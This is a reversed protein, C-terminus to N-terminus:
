LVSHEVLIVETQCVTETQKLCQIQDSQSSRVPNQPTAQVPGSVSYRASQYCSYYEIANDASNEPTKMKKKFQIVKYMLVFIMACALIFFALLIEFSRNLKEVEQQCILHPKLARSTANPPLASNGRNTLNAPALQELIQLPLVPMVPTAGPPNNANYIEHLFEQAQSSALSKQSNTDTNDLYKNYTKHTTFKSWQIRVTSTVANSKLGWIAGTTTNVCNEFETRKVNLLPKGHLKPPNQCHINVSYPSSALWIRLGFLSCDCNWPNYSAQLRTLSILPQLVNPQLDTLKNFALNLVKLSAGMEEFSNNDIRVIKNRDLQLYILHNLLAFTDSNIKELNNHSLILQKLNCLGAFGNVSITKIKANQLFLDQLESLGKFAFCPISSIPNNSLLLRKLNKLMRFANSPIHALSNNELYLHELNNLQCFASDSVKAIRNNALNLTHLAIMGVFAGTGIVGLHNNQLALYQVAVLDSFLGHPLFAIQNHQLYLYNLNSLGDFIRRDLYRIYNNNLHLNYLKKLDAFAKPHVYLIGSNDLYLVIVKQLDRLENLHINSINNGSLYVLTTSKPFDKPISTLGLGRCNAQRETCLPCTSPCGLIGKHLLFILFWSLVHLFLPLFPLSSQFGCMDRIKVKRNM